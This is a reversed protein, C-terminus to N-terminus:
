DAWHKDWYEQQTELKYLRSRISTQETELGYVYKARLHNGQEIQDMRKALLQFQEYLEPLMMLCKIFRRM